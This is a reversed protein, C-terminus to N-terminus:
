WCMILGLHFCKGQQVCISVSHSSIPAALPVSLPRQTEGGGVGVPGWGPGGGQEAAEQGGGGGRECGSVRLVVAEQRPVPLSSPPPRASARLLADGSM